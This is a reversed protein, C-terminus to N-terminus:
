RASFELRFGRAEACPPHWGNVVFIKRSMYVTYGVYTINHLVIYM